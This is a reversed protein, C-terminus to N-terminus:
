SLYYHLLQVKTAIATQEGRRIIPQPLLPDFFDALRYFSCRPALVIFVVLSHALHFLPRILFSPSMVIQLIQHDSWLVLDIRM